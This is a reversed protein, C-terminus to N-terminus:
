AGLLLIRGSGSIARRQLLTLEDGM